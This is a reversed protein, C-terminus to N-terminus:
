KGGSAVKQKGSAARHQHQGAGM